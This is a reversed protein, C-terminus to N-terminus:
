CKEGRGGGWDCEREWEREVARPFEDAGGRGV